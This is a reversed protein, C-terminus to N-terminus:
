VCMTSIYSQLIEVKNKLKDSIAEIEKKFDEFTKINQQEIIFFNNYENYISVPISQNLGTVQDKLEFVTQIDYPLETILDYLTQSDVLYAGYNNRILNVQQPGATLLTDINRVMKLMTIYHKVVLFVTRESLSICNPDQAEDALVSQTGGM